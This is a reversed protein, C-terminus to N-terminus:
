AHRGALADGHTPCAEFLHRQVSPAGLDHLYGLARRRAAPASTADLDPVTVASHSTSPVHM